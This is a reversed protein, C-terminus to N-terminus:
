AFGTKKPRGRTEARVRRGAVEIDGARFAGRANPELRRRPSVEAALRALRARIEDRDVFYREPDHNLPQLFELRKALEALEAALAEPKV